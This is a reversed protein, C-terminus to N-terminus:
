KFVTFLIIFFRHNILKFRLYIIFFYHNIQYNPNNKKLNQYNLLFSDSLIIFYINLFVM